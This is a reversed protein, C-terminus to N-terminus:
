LSFSSFEFNTELITKLSLSFSLDRFEIIWGATATSKSLKQKLCLSSLYITFSAAIIKSVLVSFRKSLIIYTLAGFSVLISLTICLSLSDLSSTNFRICFWIFSVEIISLHSKIISLILKVSNSPLTNSIWSVSIFRFYNRLM